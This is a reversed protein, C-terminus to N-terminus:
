DALRMALLFAPMSYRDPDLRAASAAEAMAGKRDNARQALHAALWHAAASRPTARLVLSLHERSEDDRRLNYLGVALQLQAEADDPALRVARSLAGVAAEYRSTASWYCGLRAWAAAERPHLRVADALAAEAPDGKAPAVAGERSPRARGADSCGSALVALSLLVLGLVRANAM